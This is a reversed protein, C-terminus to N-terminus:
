HLLKEIEPIMKTPDEDPKYFRIVKGESDTLFKGFNWPINKLETEGKNFDASKFKLYLYLPHTNPGNVEIKSFLPFTVKFKNSAFNKIDLECASEQGMFQNCPFGLIELGKTNYKEYLDVLERYNKDTYGCSSATNVVIVAKKNKVFDGITKDIGEIDKVKIDKFKMDALTSGAFKDAGRKFVISGM